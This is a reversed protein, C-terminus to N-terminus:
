TVKMYRGGLSVRLELFVRPWVRIGRRHCHFELVFNIIDLLAELPLPEFFLQRRHSPNTFTQQSKPDLNLKTTEM